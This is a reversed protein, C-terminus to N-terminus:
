ANAAKPYLKSKPAVGDRLMQSRFWGPYSKKADGIKFQKKLAEFVQANTKGSLILSRAVHSLSGERGLSAAKAKAKTAKKATTKATTTVKTEKKSNNVPLPIVNTKADTTTKM